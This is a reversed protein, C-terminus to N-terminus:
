KAVDIGFDWMTMGGAAGMANTFVFAYEGPELPSKPQLRYAGQALREQTCEVADKPKSSTGVKGMNAQRNGNTLTLHILSFDAATKAGAPMTDGGMMQSMMAMPDGSPQAPEAFYFYFTPSAAATRVDAMTGALEFVTSAKIIGQTLMMKGMGQTKMEHPMAGRLRTQTAGDKGPVDLYIGAAHKSDDQVFPGASVVPLMYLVGGAVVAAVTTRTISM